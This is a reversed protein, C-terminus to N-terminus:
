SIGCVPRARRVTRLVRRALGVSVVAWIAFAFWIWVAAFRRLGAIGQVDAVTFSCVAYMGLPFVTSWRRPDYSPRPRGVEALLLAPLWVAAAAWLALAALGLSGAAGRLVGIVPAAKAVRGCALTAIALAGGAVWHDGRGVLLQRLDFGVAVFVYFVLGLGVWALAALALWTAAPHAVVIAAALTALSETAVVLVFSSGVAPRQWHSLVYPVLVLWLLFAIALLAAAERSWGLMELRAGFVDTGAVGTLAAPSRAERLLRPRLRTVLILLGAGLVFWVAAALGLLVRSLAEHGDLSLGISVIGTGM